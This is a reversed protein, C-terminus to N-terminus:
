LGTAGDIMERLLDLHGNHRATEEIMHTVCWRLTPPETWKERKFIAVDDLSHDAIIEDAIAIQERYFAVVEAVPQQTKFEIDDDGSEEWMTDPPTNTFMTRFWGWEVHALHLVIGIPTLLSTEVPRRRADEDSLGELKWIATERHFKLWGLLMEREDLGFEPEARGGPMVEAM